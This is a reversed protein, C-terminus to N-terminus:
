EGSKHPHQELMNERRRHVVALGLETTPPIAIESSFPTVLIPSNAKMWSIMSIEEDMNQSLADVAEEMKFNEALRILIDYLIIESTELLVDERLMHLEIDNNPLYEKAFNMISEPASLAPLKSIEKTAKGGLGSILQELRIQHKRTEELHQELRVLLPPLGTNSIRSELREIIANEIALAQNLSLVFKDHNITPKKKSSPSQRVQSRTKSRKKSETASSRGKGKAVVM